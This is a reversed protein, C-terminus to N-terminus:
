LFFFSLNEKLGTLPGPNPFGLEGGEVLQRLESDNFV